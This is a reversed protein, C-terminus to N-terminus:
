HAGVRELEEPNLALEQSMCSNEPPGQRVPRPTYGIVTGDSQAQVWKGTVWPAGRLVAGHAQHHEFLTTGCWMCCQRTVSGTLVEVKIAKGALHSTGTIALRDVAM